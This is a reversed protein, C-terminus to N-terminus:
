VKKSLLQKYFIEKEYGQKHCVFEFVENVQPSEEHLKEEQM